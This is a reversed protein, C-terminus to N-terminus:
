RRRPSAPPTRPKRAPLGPEILEVILHAFLLQVEQIFPVSGSPVIVAHDVQRRAPGGGKGLLALRTLGLTRATRLAELINPSAGSTSLAFAVDGPRSLAELQRAFVRSFDQDNSISTLVASDTTLALAPLGIRTRHLRNVLESAFHQAAAASGGNGFVFVRNGKRFTRRLCDAAERLAGGIEGGAPTTGAGPPPVLAALAEGTERIRRHIYDLERERKRSAPARLEILPHKM